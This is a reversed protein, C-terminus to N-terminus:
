KSNQLKLRQGVKKFLILMAPKQFSSFLLLLARYYYLVTKYKYLVAGFFHYLVDIQIFLMLPLM